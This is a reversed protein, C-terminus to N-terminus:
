ISKVQLIRANTEREQHEMHRQADALDGAAAADAMISLEDMQEQAASYEPWEEAEHRETLPNASRGVFPRGRSSGRRLQQQALLNHQEFLSAGGGVSGGGEHEERMADLRRDIEADSLDVEDDEDSEDDNGGPLAAAAAGASASALEEPSFIHAGGAAAVVLVNEHDRHAQLEDDDDEDDDDDEGEDDNGEGPQLESRLEQAHDCQECRDIYREV